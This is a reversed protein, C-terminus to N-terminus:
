TPQRNGPKVPVGRAESVIVVVSGVIIAAAAMSRFTLPEDALWWGLVLAIV